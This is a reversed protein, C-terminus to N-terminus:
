VLATFKGKACYPPSAWAGPRKAQASAITYAQSKTEKENLFFFSPLYNQRSKLWDFKLYM